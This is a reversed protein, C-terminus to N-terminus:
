EVLNHACYLFFASLTNEQSTAWRLLVFIRGPLAKALLARWDRWTKGLEIAPHGSLVSADMLLWLNSSIDMLALGTKLCASGGKGLHAVRAHFCECM